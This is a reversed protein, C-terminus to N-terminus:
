NNGENAAKIAQYAYSRLVSVLKTIAHCLNDLREIDANIGGLYSERDATDSDWNQSVKQIQQLINGKASFISQMLQQMNDAQQLLLNPDNIEFTM